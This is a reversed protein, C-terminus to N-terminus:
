VKQYRTVTGGEAAIPCDSAWPPNQSMLAEFEKESGFSSLTEAIIEDHVTLVIPYKHKEVRVMAEAMIDRAVAQVVNETLMGGYTRIRGWAGGKKNDRGEYTLGDKVTGWATEGAEIRPNYYWIRRGNPLIATLWEGAADEVFEYVIKMYSHPARTRVTLIAAEELGKWLNVVESYKSRYLDVMRQAQSDDLLVGYDKEAQFQLKSWGMQYGCGLITIKGLQREHGNAKTVEFGVLDSATVCYIDESLKDDSRHFVDVGIGCGALWFVVRAEIASFDCVRFVYGDEAIFMGRLSSAVAATASGYLYELVEPDRRKIQQVLVEMDEKITPRPFNQPQVLRGAWRGTGAGHYQLLGRIRGDKSVTNKMKELKKTSSRALETRIELARITGPELGRLKSYRGKKDKQLLDELTEKQMNPMAALGNERLWNLLKDRQTAATVVGETIDCLERNFATEVQGVVDMAADVAEIDLKVGRQNIRQDLCWIGYESPPLEGVTGGLMHEARVDQKCYDYLELMLDEDERYIRDPEKKTGWKPVSLTQLLYKGRKDKQVPLKLAVGAKDLALPLGRYACVAQTDRWKRPMPIGLKRKLIFLWMAREFQVNHAEFVGGAEAHDIITQPFPEGPRWLQEPGDDFRYALCLIETTPDEAYRWAGVDRVSLYSRSEFDVLCVEHKM